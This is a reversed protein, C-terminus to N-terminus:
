RGERPVIPQALPVHDFDGSMGSLWIEKPNRLMKPGFVFSNPFGVDFPVAAEIEEVDSQDLSVKLAEINMKLHEIKRIGLLPFVYPTKAMVYAQAVSTIQTGKRNAVAELAESIKIDKESPQTVRGEGAAAARQEASKFHGSGLAGWPVIGMGEAECMPIVDRELDRIAASWNGQYVSFTRLGHARAYENAKTVVWAPTDSVGLYLVKGSEVLSNLSHM